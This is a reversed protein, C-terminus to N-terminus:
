NKTCITKAPAAIPIRANLTKSYATVYATVTDSLPNQAPITLAINDQGKNGAIAYLALEPFYTDAKPDKKDTETIEKDTFTVSRNAEDFAHMHVVKGNESTINIQLEVL